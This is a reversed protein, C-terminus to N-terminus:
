RGFRRLQDPAPREGLTVDLTVREGERVVELAVTADAAHGAVADRLADADEVSEGAVGVIVDGEVLGGAEAPSEGQVFAVAAGGRVGVADAFKPPVDRISVGLWGRRVRGHAQLDTMVDQVLAAPIAFGIGQSGGSRSYIATNIGILNGRADILAGGSNGPNIAADTQIFNEFDTIGMSDRGVASVIGTSVSNELGFPNGIAAVTEGPRPEASAFSLAPYTADSEGLLRVVAVDTGPDTGVVEAGLTRGDSLQVRLADANAIVHHNTVVVGSPDVIVGSGQGGRAGPPALGFSGADRGSRVSSINVVAPAAHSVLDAMADSHSVLRARAEAMAQLEDLASLGAVSPNASLQSGILVGGLATAAALAAAPFWRTSHTNMADNNPSVESLSPAFLARRADCEREWGARRLTM